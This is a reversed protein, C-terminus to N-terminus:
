KKGRGVIETIAYRSVSIIAGSKVRIDCREQGVSTLVGYLGNSFEVEQGVALSNHLDEFHQRRKKIRTFSLIYYIIAGIALLGLLAISSNLVGELM